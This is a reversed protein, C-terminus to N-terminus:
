RRLTGVMWCNKPCRRVMARVEQAQESEWITM